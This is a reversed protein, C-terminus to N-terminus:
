GGGERQGSEEGTGELHGPAAGSGRRSRTIGWNVKAQKQPRWPKQLIFLFFSSAPPPCSVATHPAAGARDGGTGERGRPVRTGGGGQGPATGEAARGPPTQPIKPRGQPPASPDPTPLARPSSKMHGTIRYFGWNDRLNEGKM